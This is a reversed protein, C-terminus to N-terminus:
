WREQEQSSRLQADRTAATNTETAQAPYWHNLSEDDGWQADTSARDRPYRDISTVSRVSDQDRWSMSDVRDRQLTQVTRTLENFRLQIRDQDDTATATSTEAERLDSHLRDNQSRLELITSKKDELASEWAMSAGDNRQFRDRADDEKIAIIDKRQMDMTSEQKKLLNQRRQYHTPSSFSPTTTTSTRARSAPETSPLKCRLDDLNTVSIPNDFWGAFPLRPSSSQGLWLSWLGLRRWLCWRLLIRWWLCPSHTLCEDEQDLLQLTGDEWLHPM